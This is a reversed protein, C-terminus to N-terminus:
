APSRVQFKSVMEPRAGPKIPRNGTKKLILGAHLIIRKEAVPSRNGPYDPLKFGFGIQACIIPMLAQTKRDAHYFLSYSDCCSITTGGAAYILFNVPYIEKKIRIRAILHELCESALHVTADFSGDLHIRGADLYRFNLTFIKM